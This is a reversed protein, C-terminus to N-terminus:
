KTKLIFVVSGDKLPINGISNGNIESRTNIFYIYGEQNLSRIRSIKGTNFVDDRIGENEKIYSIKIHFTKGNKMDEMYLYSQDDIRYEVYLYKGIFIKQNIRKLTAAEHQNSLQIILNIVPEIKQEQKQLQYFANDTMQFAFFLSNDQVFFAGKEFWIFSGGNLTNEAKKSIKVPLFFEKGTSLDLYSIDHNITITDIMKHSQIYLINKYFFCGDIRNELKYTKKLNGSFDFVKLEKNVPVYLEKKITDGTINNLITGGCDIRRILKGSPNFQFISNHSATFIYEQTMFIDLVMGTNIELPVVSVKEAIDSLNLQQPEKPFEPIVKTNQGHLLFANLLLLTPLIKNKM